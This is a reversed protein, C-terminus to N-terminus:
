TLNNVSVFAVIILFFLMIELNCLIKETSILAEGKEKNHMLIITNRKKQLSVKKRWYFSFPHLQAGDAAHISYHAAYNMVEKNEGSLNTGFYEKL